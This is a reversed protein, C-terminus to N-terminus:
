ALTSGLDIVADLSTELPRSLYIDTGMASLVTGGGTNPRQSLSNGCEVVFVVSFPPLALVGPLVHANDWTSTSTQDTDSGNESVAVQTEKNRTRRAM